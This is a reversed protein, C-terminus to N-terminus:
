NTERYLTTQAEEAFDQYSLNSNQSPRPEPETAAKSDQKTKTATNPANETTKEAASPQAETNVEPMIKAANDQTAPAAIPKPPENAVPNEILAQQHQTQLSIVGLSNLIAILSGSIVLGCIVGVVLTKLRSPESKPTTIPKKPATTKPLPAANETNENERNEDASPEDPTLEPTILPSSEFEEDVVAAINDNVAFDPEIVDNDASQTKETAPEAPLTFDLDFDLGDDDAKPVTPPLSDAGDIQQVRSLFREYIDSTKTSVKKKTFSAQSGRLSPKSRSKKSDTMFSFWFLNLLFTGLIVARRICVIYHPAAAAELVIQILGTM